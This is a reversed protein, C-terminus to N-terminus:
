MCAKFRREESRSKSCSQQLIEQRNFNLLSKDADPAPEGPCDFEFLCVDLCKGEKSLDIAEMAICYVKGDVVRAVARGFLQMSDQCKLDLSTQASSFTRPADNSDDVM